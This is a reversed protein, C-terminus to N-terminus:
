VIALRCSPEVVSPLTTSAASMGRCWFELCLYKIFLDNMCGLRSAPECLKRAAVPNLVKSSVLFGDCLEHRFRERLSSVWGSVPPNFGVKPRSFIEDPLWQRTADRLWQKPALPFAPSTKQLGVVLEVLRYDLLPLRLEVSNAMSLRDGQALGNERLYGACMRELIQLDIREANHRKDFFSGPDHDAVLRAFVDTYTSRAAYVAMQYPDTLDHLVLRGAPSRSGPALQRWGALLGGFLFALRVLHPRSFRFPLQAILEQLPGIPSGQAKRESHHVARVTWPYGWFLEDGGQGQLLVKCGEARARESLAFYGFGAIDAIPDDRLFNLRPFGDLMEGPSIEVEHFPLGLQGAWAQAANREDQAPRGPYGVSFAHVTTSSHRAALAAILSSDVGGSLAVGIPVESRVILSAISDLEARILEGPDGVVPASNLL